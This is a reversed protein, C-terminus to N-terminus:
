RKGSDYLAEIKKIYEKAKDDNGQNEYMASIMSYYEPLQDIPTDAEQALMEDLYTWGKLVYIDYLHDAYTQIDKNDLGKILEHYRDTGAREERSLYYEFGRLYVDEKQRENLNVEDFHAFMRDAAKDDGSMLARNLKLFDVNYPAIFLRIYWKDIKKDFAAYDQRILSNEVSSVVARRILPVAILMAAILVIAIILYINM